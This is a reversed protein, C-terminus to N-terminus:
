KQFDPVANPLIDRPNSPAPPPLEEPIPKWEDAPPASPVGQALFVGAGQHQGLAYDLRGLAALYNYTASVFRQQSRTLAAEGDVVDTPTANGNGYRVRVLRLNEAAQVVATRSLNILERAAMVDHYAVNVELSVADLIGEADALAAEIDADATQLEGRHRGGAYLPTELHLGVGDVWGTRVNEGSVDGAVARVYIRPLFEGRAVQRGEHSVAVAERALAVEPRQVAATELLHCLDASFAPNADLDVLELPWGANRGMTNNLRAMANFEGKRALVLAERNESLQVEARLVDEKLAVGGKRQAESDDLISRARRVADEQVRRHARALLVGLYAADVDFEVTQSARALQLDAIYERAVAQRYRGGTRGFDYLTWQLGVVTEQYVHTGDVARLFGTYGPSGPGLNDSTGGYQGLLDFQPLFPAFAVQEQGQTRQVAARFSRLRPNNQLAFAIADSLSFTSSGGRPDLRPPRNASAKEPGVVSEAPNVNLNPPIMVRAAVAAPSVEPSGPSAARKGVCGAALIALTLLWLLVRLRWDAASAGLRVVRVM